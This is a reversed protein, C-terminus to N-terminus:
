GVTRPIWFDHCTSISHVYPPHLTGTIFMALIATAMSVAGNIFPTVHFDRNELYDIYQEDMAFLRTIAVGIIASIVHGGLANRPQSLPSDMAGYVLVATAGFSAIIIPAHYMERFATNTMMIAEVLLIGILSGFWGTAWVEYKLPIHNLWKLPPIPAYPPKTGPPRYGVFRSIFSPLRGRYDEKLLFRDRRRFHLPASSSKDHAHRPTSSDRKHRRISSLAIARKLTDISSPSDDRRDNELAPSLLGLTM